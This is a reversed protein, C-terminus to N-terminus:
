NFMCHNEWFFHLLSLFAFWGWYLLPSAKLYCTIYFKDAALKRTFYMFLGTKSNSEIKLQFCRCSTDFLLHSLLIMSRTVSSYIYQHIAVNSEFASIVHCLQKGYQCREEGDAAAMWCWHYWSTNKRVVAYLCFRGNGKKECNVGFFVPFDVKCRIRSSFLYWMSTMEKRTGTGFMLGDCYMRM